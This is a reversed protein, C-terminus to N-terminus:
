KESVEFQLAQAARSEKEKAQKDRILLQLVYDGPQLANELNLKRRIPIREFDTVGSLDISEVASRHLEEGNRYLVTQYELDPPIKKKNKANYIVTMYELNEGPLYSRLAQSKRVDGNSSSVPDLHEKKPAPLLWSADENNNIIFISSLALIKKKLDPIEIFQYASGMAGTAQDRTAVRIYYGGPKKIPFALAFRFGHNRIWQIEDSNVRFGLQKNGLNQMFGNIDTTAASAELSISRGGDKEDIIGLARGDLHLWAQVVYGKRLDGVFGSALNVKLDKHQFPSFMAGMLPTKHHVTLADLTEDTGGFGARAHVESFARKVKIQIDHFTNKGQGQFTNTPPIYTLLYYGQMEEDVDKIGDLFFNRNMLLLGGTRQSLPLLRQDDAPLPDATLGRIDLTHIVVGARWATDGLRNAQLQYKYTEILCSPGSLVDTVKPCSPLTIRSTMLLLFKRGPLDQMANICYGIANMHIKFPVKEREEPTLFPNIRFFGNGFRTNDITALLQRKDSSLTQMAANGTSTRMIAVADGPQMQTEVFKRLSMRLNAVDDFGMFLDNVLFVLTRRISDRSLMPSPIPPLTQNDGSRSDRKEPQPRYYRIYQCSIINQRQGDQRIEFDDAALDAIPHGKMDVVVADLRVEEVGVRIRFDDAPKAAQLNNQGNLNAALCFCFFAIWAFTPFWIGRFCHRILRM